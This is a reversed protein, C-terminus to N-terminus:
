SGGPNPPDTRLADWAPDRPDNMRDRNGDFWGQLDTRRRAVVSAQAAPGQQNTLAPSDEAPDGAMAVATEDDLPILQPALLTAPLLVAALLLLADTQMEGARRRHRFIHKLM